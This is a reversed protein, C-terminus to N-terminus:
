PLVHLHRLPVELGPSLATDDKTCYLVRPLSADGSAVDAPNAVRCPHTRVEACDYFQFSFAVQTPSPDCEMAEFLRFWSSIRATSCSMAQFQLVIKNCQLADSLEVAANIDAVTRPHRALLASSLVAETPVTSDPAAQEPVISAFKAATLVSLAARSAEVPTAITHSPV